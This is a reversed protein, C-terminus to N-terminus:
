SDFFNVRLEPVCRMETTAFSLNMPLAFDTTLTVTGYLGHDLRVRIYGSYNVFRPNYPPGFPYTCTYCYFVHVRPHDKRNDLM